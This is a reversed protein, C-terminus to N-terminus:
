GGQNLLRLLQYLELPPSCYFGQAFQCGAERLWRAQAETEVGEAVVGLGLSQALLFLTRLIVETQSSTGIERVFGQDIKILDIPLDRLYTLSSYGKGFDDLAVKVGLRRLASLRQAALEPQEILLDETVEVSVRGPHVGQQILAAHFWPLFSADLLTKPSLNLSLHLPTERLHKLGTQIILRDLQGLEGMEEALPIFQAPSIWGRAPHRWRALLEVRQWQGERLQVIPQYFPEIQDEKLAVRLAQTLELREAIPKDLEFDYFDYPRRLRKTQYMAVDAARLLGGVDQAHEPYLAAGIAVSVAIRRGELDLPAEFAQALARAYQMALAQDAEVLLVFEDGGLRASLAPFARLREAVRELMRDGISHGYVDNIMKFENFDLYFLCASRGEQLMPEGKQMFGRRNLLGTLPDYYALYEIQRMAEKRERVDRLVAVFYAPEGPLGMASTEVEVRRGGLTRLPQEVWPLPGEGRRLLAVRELNQELREPVWYQRLNTRLLHEPTPAELLKLASSNAYAIQLTQAEVLLIGDTLNEVLKRFREESQSLLFVAQNRELVLSLQAVAAQLLELEQPEFLHDESEVNVTGVVSGEVVVLVLMASIVRESVVLFDPDQTPQHLLIPEGSFYCRSTLGKGLPIRVHNLAYGRHHKAVLESGERWYVAVLGHGFWGHLAEVFRRLVQGPDKERLLNERLSLMFELRRTQEQAKELLAQKHRESEKLREVAYARELVLNLQAGVSQLLELDRPNLRRDRSEVNLVGITQGEAKLPIAVQSHIDPLAYIFDPEQRADEVLVPEGSLLCRSSIGRGVPLRDHWQSYGVQHQLVQWNDQRLYISVLNYGFSTAILEVARRIASELTLELSLAERFRLLLEFPAEDAALNQPIYQQM